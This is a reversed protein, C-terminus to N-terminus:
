FYFYFQMDPYNTCDFHMNFKLTTAISSTASTVVPFYILKYNEKMTVTRKLPIKYYYKAIM